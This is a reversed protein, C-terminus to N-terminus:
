CVYNIRIIIVILILRDWLCNHLLEFFDLFDKLIKRRGLITGDDLPIRMCSSMNEAAFLFIHGYVTIKLPIWINYFVSVLILIHYQLLSNDTIRTYKKKKQLFSPELEHDLLWYADIKLM